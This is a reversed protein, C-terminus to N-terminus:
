APTWGPPLGEVLLMQTSAASQRLAKAEAYEPSEWWQRARDANPFELIVFRPPNWDGELAHCAGGRVIYRGDYKAISPPALTRYREYRVPDHIDIQVVVYAPM